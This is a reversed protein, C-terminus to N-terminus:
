RCRPSFRMRSPETTVFFYPNKYLMDYTGEMMTDMWTKVFILSVSMVSYCHVGFEVIM